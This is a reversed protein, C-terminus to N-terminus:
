ERGTGYLSAKLQSAQFNLDKGNLFFHVQAATGKMLLKENKLSNPLEHGLIAYRSIAVKDALFLETKYYYSATEAKMLRILQMPKIQKLTIEVWSAPDQPDTKKILLKGNDQLTAERGDPLLYYLEEQMYCTVDQMHEVIQTEEDSHDLVMQADAAIIRLRLRNAGQMYLADKQVQHRQQKSQYPNTQSEDNKVGADAMLEHYKKADEPDVVSWNAAAFYILCPLIVFGTLGVSITLFKSFRIRPKNHM